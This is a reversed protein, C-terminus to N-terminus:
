DRRVRFLFTLPAAALPVLTMFHFSNIYGIMAAQKRVEESALQQFTATGIEGFTEIWPGLPYANFITVFTILYSRAEASSQVFVILIVAIFLSGGM